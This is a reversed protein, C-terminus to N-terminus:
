KNSEYRKKAEDLIQLAKNVDAFGKVEVNKKELIKYTAFFNEIEKLLHNPLEELTNIDKYYPDGTAVCILKEDEGKEDAMLFIGICKTEVVCGPFTPESLVIMADLPDGDSGLTHDIFGYETPYHISSYLVRDLRVTGTHHDVEYKNRSGKPIEVIVDFINKEM